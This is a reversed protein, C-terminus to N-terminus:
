RRPVFGPGTRWLRRGTQGEWARELYAFRAELAVAIRAFDNAEIATLTSALSEVAAQPAERVAIRRVPEMWRTLTDMVQSLLASHTARGLATNFRVAALSLTEAMQDDVPGSLDLARAPAIAERMADLDDHTARGAAFEVIRPEIVRRAVLVDAMDSLSLVVAAMDQPTWLAPRRRVFTGGGAGPETTLVGEAALRRLAERLVARGVGLQRALEQESPLREGARVDGLLIAQTIAGAVLDAPRPTPIPAFVHPTAPARPM